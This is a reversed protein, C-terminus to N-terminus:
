KKTSKLGLEVTHRPQTSIHYNKGNEVVPSTQDSIVQNTNTLKRLKGNKFNNKKINTFNKNKPFRVEKIM